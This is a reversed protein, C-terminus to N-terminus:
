LGCRTAAASTQAAAASTMKATPREGIAPVAPMPCVIPDNDASGAAFGGAGLTAGSLGFVSGDFGSNAFALPSSESGTRVGSTARARSTGGSSSSSSAGPNTTGARGSPAPVVRGADALLAESEAAPLRLGRGEAGTGALADTLFGGGGGVCGAAGSGARLFEVSSSKPM